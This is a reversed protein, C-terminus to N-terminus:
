DLRRVYHRHGPGYGRREYFRQAARNEEVVNLSIFRSGRERAWAEVAAMLAAGVGAGSRAVAIESVHVYPEATFFDRETIAYLFGARTGDAEQAILFLEGERPAVLARRMVRATGVIVEDPTHGDAAGHEVFRPVLEVVFTEDDPRAPRITM